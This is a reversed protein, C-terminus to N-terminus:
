TFKLMAHFRPPWLPLLPVGLVEVVKAFNLDGVESTPSANKLVLLNLSVASKILAFVSSARHTSFCFGLLPRHLLQFNLPSPTTPYIYALEKQGEDGM